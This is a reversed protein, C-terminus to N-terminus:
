QAHNTSDTLLRSECNGHMRRRREELKVGVSREPLLGEGIRANKKKKPRVKSKTAPHCRMQAHAM